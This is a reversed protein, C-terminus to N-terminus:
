SNNGLHHASQFFAEPIHESVFKEWTKMNSGAMGDFKIGEKYLSASETDGRGVLHLVFIKGKVCIQPISDIDM